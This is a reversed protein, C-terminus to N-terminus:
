NFVESHLDFRVRRDSFKICANKCIDVFAPASCVCVAIRQEGQRIAEKRAALFFAKINPRGKKIFPAVSESRYSSNSSLYLELHLIKDESASTAVTLSNLTDKAYAETKITGITCTDCSDDEKDIEEEDCNCCLLGQDRSIKPATALGDEQSRGMEIDQKYDDDEAASEWEDELWRETYPVGENVEDEKTTVQNREDKVFTENQHPDTSWDTARAAFSKLLRNVRCLLGGLPVNRTEDDDVLLDEEASENLVSFFDNIDEDVSDKPYQELLLTFVLNNSFLLYKSHDFVLRPEEDNQIWKKESIQQEVDIFDRGPFTNKEHIDLEVVVRSSEFSKCRRLPSLMEVGFGNFSNRRSLLSTRIQSDDAPSNLAEGDFWMQRSDFLSSKQSGSQDLNPLPELRRTSEYRSIDMNELIQPDRATCIFWVKKLTRKGLEHDHMLQHCISQMPTVGIGGSLLMVMKYRDNSALDVALSGYPGEFLIDIMTEDEALSSLAKTWTGCAHIHLTVIDQHPASSTSFPHWEFLSIKPIALFIYQGPNYNFSTTKPFSIEVISNTFKRIHAKTPLSYM